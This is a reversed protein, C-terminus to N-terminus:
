NACLRVALEHVADYVGAYYDFERFPRDLFAAFNLLQSGALPAFRTNALLQREGGSQQKLESASQVLTSIKSTLQQLLPRLKQLDEGQRLWDGLQKREGDFPAAAAAARLSQIVPALLEAEFLDGRGLGHTAELATLADASFSHSGRGVRTLYEMLVANALRKTSVSLREGLGMADLLGNRFDRIKDDPLQSRAVRPLEGALYDFGIAALRVADTIHEQRAREPVASRRVPPIASIRDAGGVGVFVGLRHALSTVQTASLPQLSRSQVPTDAARRGSKLEQAENACRSLLPLNRQIRRIDQLQELCQYLLRGLRARDRDGVAEVPKPLAGDDDSITKEDALQQLLDYVFVFQSLTVAL